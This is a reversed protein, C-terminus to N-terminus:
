LLDKDSAARSVHFQKIRGSVSRTRRRWCPLLRSSVLPPPSLCLKQSSLRKSAFEDLLRVQLWKLVIDLEQDRLPRMNSPRDSLAPVILDEIALLISAWLASMINQMNVPNLTASLLQLNADFYDLLPGIASEMQIDTLPSSKKVPSGIKPRDQRMLSVYTSQLRKALDEQVREPEGQTLRAVSARSLSNRITGRM